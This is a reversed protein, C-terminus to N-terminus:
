APGGRGGGRFEFLPNNVRNVRLESESQLRRRTHAEVAVREAFLDFRSFRAALEPFARQYRDICAGTMAWFVGEAVAYHESFFLALESLNMSFFASYLFDRVDDPEAAHIYSSRNANLHAEPTEELAAFHRLRGAESRLFRVGDHFDKFAVRVPVGRRHLLIMNQAHAELAVGHAYLLHVLPTVAADLLAALWARAGDRTVWPDILPRGDRDVATLASFPLAREGEDLYPHLSERGICALSGAPAPSVPSRYSVAATEALFVTRLRNNLYADDRALAKLGASIAPANVVTHEALGRMTSTNVINLALKLYCRDPRSVNALTRISQQPRYADESEGLLVIHRHHRDWGYEVAIVRRWQWPHVPMLRYDDPSEGLALLRSRFHDLRAEGLETRLWESHRAAAPTCHRKRVALWLPRVTPAFEPGFAANDIADFGIRSKYCPHYPHAEVLRSEITDYDGDRLCGRERAQHHLAMADKVVTNELERKFRELYEAVVTFRARVEDLFRSVSDAERAGGADIRTVPADALRIRGFGPRRIGRALYVVAEGDGDVGSVSFLIRDGDSQEAVDLTKEYILAQILQRFVRRRAQVFAPSDFCADFDAANPRATDDPATEKPAVRAV